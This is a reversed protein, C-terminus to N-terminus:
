RHGRDPPPNRKRERERALVRDIVLFVDALSWERQVEILSQAYGFEIPSTWLWGTERADRRQKRLDAIEAAM